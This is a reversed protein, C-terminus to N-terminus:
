PRRRRASRRLAHALHEVARGSRRAVDHQQVGAGRQEDGAARVRHPVADGPQPPWRCRCRARADQRASTLADCARLPSRTMLAVRGRGVQQSAITAAVRRSRRQAVALALGRRRELRAGRRPTGCPARTERPATARASRMLTMASHLRREGDRPTSRARSRGPRSQSPRRAHRRPRSTPGSRASTRRRRARDGARAHAVGDRQRQEALVEDDVLILQELRARVAGVGHQQDDRREGVRSSRRAADSAAACQAQGREDLDVVDVLELAREVAPASITPTLLRLRRVSSTSM